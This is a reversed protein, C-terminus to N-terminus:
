KSYPVLVRSLMPFHRENLTVLVRNGLEATAAILADALGTGHSPGFDRRILGGREATAPDLVLVDFARLFQKLLSTEAQGRVGAFLEAVTIASVAADDSQQELFANAAPVGRLYDILVDTDILLREAV